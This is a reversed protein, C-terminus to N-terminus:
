WRVIDPIPHSPPTTTLTDSELDLPGPNSERGTCWWAAVGPLNNVGVHAETVLCYLKTGALPCHHEAAPFNVTPRADCQGHTVSKVPKDVWPSVALTLSILVRGVGM